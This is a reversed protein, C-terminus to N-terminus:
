LRASAGDSYAGKRTQVPHLDVRVFHLSFGRGNWPEVVAQRVRVKLPVRSWESPSSEAVRRELPGRKLCAHVRHKKRSILLIAITVLSSLVLTQGVSKKHGLHVSLCSLLLTSSSSPSDRMRRRPM